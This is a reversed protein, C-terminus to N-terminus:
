QCSPVERFTAYHDVNVMRLGDNSFVLRKAGRKGGKYDLDAEKWKRKAANPLRGERNGFHDGGISRGSLSPVSWLDKGPRWGASQAERKTVFKAPLATNRSKNLYQLANTLEKEDIKPSMTRNFDRAVQECTAAHLTASFFLAIIFQLVIYNSARM